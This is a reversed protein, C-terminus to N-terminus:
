HFTALILSRGNRSREGGQFRLYSSLGDGFFCSQSLGIPVILSLVIIIVLKEGDDRVIAGAVAGLAESLGVHEM